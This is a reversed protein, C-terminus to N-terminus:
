KRKRLVTKKEDLFSLITFISSCDESARLCLLERDGDTTGHCLPQELRSTLNAKEKQISIKFQATRISNYTSLLLFIDLEIATIFPHPV